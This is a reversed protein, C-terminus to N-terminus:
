CLCVGICDNGTDGGGIVVVKKGKADIKKRNNASMWNDGVAGSDMLRM